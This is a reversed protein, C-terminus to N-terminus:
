KLFDMYEKYEKAIDVKDPENFWDYWKGYQDFSRKNNLWVKSVRNIYIPLLREDINNDKFYQIIYLLVEEYSMYSIREYTFSGGNTLILESPLRFEHVGYIGFRKSVYSNSDIDTNTLLDRISLNPAYGYISLDGQCANMVFINESITPDLLKLIKVRNEDNFVFVSDNSIETHTQINECYDCCANNSCGTLGILLFMGCILRIKETITGM